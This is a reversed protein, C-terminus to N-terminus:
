ANNVKITKFQKLSCSQFKDQFFIYIYSFQFLFTLVRPLIFINIISLHIFHIKFSLKLNSIEM